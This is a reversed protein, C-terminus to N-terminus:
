ELKNQPRWSAAARSFNNYMANDSNLYGLYHKEGKTEAFEEEIGSDYNTLDIDLVSSDTCLTM